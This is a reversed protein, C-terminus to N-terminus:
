SFDKTFRKKLEAYDDAELAKTYREQIECQVDSNSSHFKITKIKKNFADVAKAHLYQSIIWVMLARWEDSPPVLEEIDDFIKLLAPFMGGGVTDVQYGDSIDIEKPWLPIVSNYIESFRM